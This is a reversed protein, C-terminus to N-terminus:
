RKKYQKFRKQLQHLQNIRADYCAQKLSGVPVQARASSLVTIAQDLQGNLALTEARASMEEDNLGQQASAQALLDWRNPDDPHSWTYRNLIRSANDPQKALLPEILKKASAFSKAQLFPSPPAQPTTGIDPLSDSLDAWASAHPMLMLTPILAALLTKKLRNLM